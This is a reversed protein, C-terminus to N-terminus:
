RHVEVAVQDDRVRRAHQDPLLARATAACSRPGVYEFTSTARFGSRTTHIGVGKGEKIRPSSVLTWDPSRRRHTVLAPHSSIARLRYGARRYIGGIIGTLASGLGIGQYDPLAVSRHLRWMGDHKSGSSIPQPIVSCWLAPQGNILAIYCAASKSHEASLYHHRRFIRWADTTTRYIELEVGPRPQVSRWTFTETQTDYIWDPQLWDIVDYHCGVALLQQGATRRVHKAVAASAIQAVTRDVLSTFEDIVTLGPEALARALDVRFQEGQSLTVFPRLWAPPSSFGVSSLLGVVSKADMAEPFGDLISRHPHWTRHAPVGFLERVISTKGSGSPGAILGIQWSRGEIPLDVDVTTTNTEAAPVDFMGSIAAVRWSPEVPSSLVIHAKM